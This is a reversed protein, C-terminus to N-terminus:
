VTVSSLVLGAMGCEVGVLADGGGAGGKRGSGGGTCEGRDAVRPQRDGEGGVWGTMEEDEDKNKIKMKMKKEKLKQKKEKKERKKKAEIEEDSEKDDQFQLSMWQSGGGGGGEARDSAKTFYAFAGDPTRGVGFSGYVLTKKM